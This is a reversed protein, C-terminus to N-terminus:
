RPIEPSESPKNSLPCRRDRLVVGFEQDSKRDESTIKKEEPVTFYIPIYLEGDIKKDRFIAYLLLAAIVLLLIILFIMVILFCVNVINTM